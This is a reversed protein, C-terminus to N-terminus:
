RSSPYARARKDKSAAIRAAEYSRAPAGPISEWAHGNWREVVWYRGAPLAVRQTRYSLSYRWGDANARHFSELM